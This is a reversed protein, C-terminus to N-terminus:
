HDYKDASSLRALGQQAMSNQPDFSLAAMFSTRASQYEGNGELALGQYLYSTSDKKLSIVEQLAALSQAYQKKELTLHAIRFFANRDATDIETERRYHHLAQESDGLQEYCYALNLNGNDANPDVALAKEFQAAAERYREQNLLVFGHWIYSTATQLTKAISAFYGTKVAMFERYYDPANEKLNKEWQETDVQWKMLLEAYLAFEYPNWQMVAQSLQALTQPNNAQELRNRFQDFEQNQLQAMAFELAPNDLTNVPVNKDGILSYANDHLLGYPLWATRLQYEKLFFDSIKHNTVVAELNTIALPSQSCILLYYNSAVGGLWCEPFVEQVTKLMIDMGRAGVRSDVWTVYVGDPTMTNKVQKLFDATYLKSAGFYLPTTVTNVIFSYKKHSLKTYHIADDVILNLGPISSITFNYEKMRDLNQLIVPNIEVADTHEFISGVVSATAGSGVGLVLAQDIRPSFITAFAGVIKEYPSDLAISIYGNIFFYPINNIWTIAFVDQNGKFKESFQIEQQAQALSASSHFKDHGIYLLGEDWVVAHLIPLLGSLALTAFMLQKSINVSLLLAVATLGAIVLILVGYDLYRHLFFAMLLFGLANAQSAIFLLLGSNKTVERNRRLLTPITAGYGIAPILMFAALGGWKLGVLAIYNEAAREYLLAYLSAVLPYSGLLWVLGILSLLLATKFRLRFKSTILSGLAIGLLVLSIVLAFVERFPGYLCSALKIMLLQFIASAISALCLAALQRFPLHLSEAPAPKEAPLEKFLFFLISAVIANLSAIIVVSTRLGFQRVLFFEIIIVTLAAGFNYLMYTKAFLTGPSLRALYGSFLPLSCGILFAPVSLIVCSLAVQGIISTNPTLPIAYLWTDLLQTGGAVLLGCLGIAAEVAWLYRWLRRALLAGFGIGSLFTLLILASVLFQDGILNGFIRGYLVEYSIGCFGSLLTLASFILIKRNQAPPPVSTGNHHQRKLDM